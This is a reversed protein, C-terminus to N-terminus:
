DLLHLTASRLAAIGEGSDFSESSTVVASSVAFASHPTPSRLSAIRQSLRAASAASCAPSSRLLTLSARAAASRVLSSWACSVGGGGAASGEIGGGGGRRAAVGGGNGGSAWCGGYRAETAGVGGDGCPRAGAALASGSRERGDTAGAGGGGGTRWGAESRVAAVL